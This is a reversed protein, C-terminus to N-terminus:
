ISPDGENKSLEDYEEHPQIVHFGKAKKSSLYDKLDVLRNFSIEKINGHDYISIRLEAAKVVLYTSGKKMVNRQIM